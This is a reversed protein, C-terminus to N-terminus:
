HQSRDEPSVLAPFRSHPAPQSDASAELAERLPRGDRVALTIGCLAALTPAIDAPTAKEFYNGPRIGWGMLIVPVRQDYYYPTGHSTGGRVPKGPKSYDWIWFPNPVIFLDGSRGDFYSTAEANRFPNQTAPRDAVEEAQYVHAVGPATQIADLVSQVARPDSKLKAYTGPTFYVNAGGIEAVPKAINFPELAKEIRSQVEVVNLRGADIGKKRLAEPIPAVGHDSSFAVVYNSRGVSKDLHEFFMALDRDLRALEDQIEWSRPGYAHGVYDVSSFSIGLFDTPSGQGLHLKDVADLAMQTLATDAYPSTAWQTYFARDAGKSEASGRLPHPFSDGYGVPSGAGDAIREYLYASEPLLTSWTKGYDASAPHAKAFEDIFPAQPYASSTLWAGTSDFWTVSDAQHGALTIAARAKLSMTVIRTGAASQYKLEEAFSPVLLKTASDGPTNQKASSEDPAATAVGGYPINKVTPDATCTVLKQQERDWWENAVMGHTAPFAGTSITSHGVCTETEAYPYAADRFVAGERVLRSLGGSWQQQFKDIYDARMQDVVLVVVLKPRNNHTPPKTASSKHPSSETPVSQGKSFQTGSLGLLTAASLITLIKIRSIQKSPPM